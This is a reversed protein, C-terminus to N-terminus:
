STLEALRREAGTLEDSFDEDTPLAVLSQYVEVLMALASERLDDDALAEEADNLSDAATQLSEIARGTVDSVRQRASEAMEILRERANEEASLNARAWDGVMSMLAAYARDIVAAQRLTQGLAARKSALTMTLDARADGGVRDRAAELVSVAERLHTAAADFRDAIEQSHHEARDNLLELLRGRLAVADQRAESAENRLKTQRANVERVVEQMVAIRSQVRKAELSEIKLESQLARLRNALLDIRGAREDAEATKALSREYLDRRKVGTSDVARSLLDAATASLEQQEGRLTEIRSELSEIEERLPKLQETELEDLREREEALDLNTQTLLAVSDSEGYESGIARLQAMEAFVQVPRDSDGAARSWSAVADAILRRAAESEVSALAQAATALRSDNLAPGGDALVDELAQRAQTLQEAQYEDLSGEFEGEPVHKASAAKIHQMARDLPTSRTEGQGQWDCGGLLGAGILAMCILRKM